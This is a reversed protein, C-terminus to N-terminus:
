ASAMAILFGAHQKRADYAAKASEAEPFWEGNVTNVAWLLEADENLLEAARNLYNRQLPTM